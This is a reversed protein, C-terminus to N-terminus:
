LDSGIYDSNQLVNRWCCARLLRLGTPSLHVRRGRGGGGSSGSQEDYFYGGNWSVTDMYLTACREYRTWLRQQIRNTSGRLWQTELRSLALGRKTRPDIWPHINSIAQIDIPTGYFLIQIGQYSSYVTLELTIYHDIFASSLPRNTRWPM